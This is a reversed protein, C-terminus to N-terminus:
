EETFYYRHKPGTDIWKGKLNRNELHFHPKEGHPDKIDFRIKKDGRMLIMDGDANTIIKGKGGLFEEISKITNDIKQLGPKGMKNAIKAIHIPAKALRAFAIVGKIAGYGGAVLSGVELGFRTKSRFSQYSADSGDISLMDM